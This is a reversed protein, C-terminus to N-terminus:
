DVYKSGFVVFVDVEYEVVHLGIKVSNDSSVDQFVNVLLVDYVLDEFTQFVHVSPM